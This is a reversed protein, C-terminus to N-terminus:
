ALGKTEYIAKKIQDLLLLEDTMKRDMQFLHQSDKEMRKAALGEARKAEFDGTPTDVALGKAASRAKAALKRDALAKRSAVEVVKQKARQALYRDAAKKANDKDRTALAKVRAQRVADKATAENSKKNQLKAIREKNADILQQRAAKSANKADALREKRTKIKEEPDNAGASTDVGEAKLRKIREEEERIQQEMSLKIRLKEVESNARKTEEAAIEKIHKIRRASIADESAGIKDLTELQKRRFEQTLLEDVALKDDQKNREFRAVEEIRKKEAAARIREETIPDNNGLFQQKSVEIAEERDIFKMRQEHLKKEGVGQLELMRLLKEQRVLEKSDDVDQVMEKRAQARQQDLEIGELQTRNEESLERLRNQHAQKQLQQIRQLKAQVSVSHAGEAAILDDLEEKEDEIIGQLQKHSMGAFAASEQEALIQKNVDGLASAIGEIAKQEDKAAELLKQQQALLMDNVKLAHEGTETQIKGTNRLEVLFKNQVEIRKEVTKIDSMGAIDRQENAENELKQKERYYSRFVEFDAAYMQERIKNAESRKAMDKRYTELRDEEDILRQTYASTDFGFALKQKIGKVNTELANNIAAVLNSFEGLYLEGYAKVKAGYRELESTAKETGKSAANVLVEDLLKKFSDKIRSLNSSTKIGAEEASIGLEELKANLLNIDGRTEQVLSKSATLHENVVDISQGTNELADGFLEIGETVATFILGTKTFQSLFLAWSAADKLFSASLASNSKTAADTSKSAQGFAKTAQSAFQEVRKEGESLTKLLNDANGILDITAANESM